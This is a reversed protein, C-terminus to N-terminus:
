HRGHETFSGGHRYRQMGQTGAEGGLDGADIAALREPAVVDRRDLGAHVLVGHQHEAVLVDGVLLLEGERALEALQLAVAGAAVDSAPRCDAEAGPM